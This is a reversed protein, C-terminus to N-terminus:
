EPEGRPLTAECVILVEWVKRPGGGGGLDTARAGGGSGGGLDLSLPRATRRVSLDSPSYFERTDLTQVSKCLGRRASQGLGGRDRADRPGGYRESLKRRLSVEFCKLQAASMEQRQSAESQDGRVFAPSHNATQTEGSPRRSRYWAETERWVNLRPSSQSVRTRVMTVPADWTDRMTVHPILDPPANIMGSVSRVNM